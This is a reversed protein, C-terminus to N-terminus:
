GTAAVGALAPDIGVEDVRVAVAQHQRRDASEGGVAQGYQQDLIRRRFDLRGAQLQRARFDVVALDHLLRDEHTGRLLLEVIRGAVVIHVRAVFALAAKRDDDGHAQGRRNALAVGVDQEAVREGALLRM